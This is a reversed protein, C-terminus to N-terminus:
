DFSNREPAQNLAYCLEAYLEPIALVVDEGNLDPPFINENGLHGRIAGAEIAILGAAAVDWPQLTEYYGDLRGCAVWCIDATPCGTRRIDLFQTVLRHIRDIIPKINDRNHPFGTGILSREKSVYPNVKLRDGNLFSGRGLMASFTEGVFPCHVVGVQVVGDIAFAISVAVANQGKLYNVTGDLPDVIWLPGEFMREGDADEESLIQHEPFRSKIWERILADSKLDGLTVYDRQAKLDSVIVQTKRLSVLLLGAETAADTALALIEDFNLGM